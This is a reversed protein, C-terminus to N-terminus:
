HQIEIRLVSNLHIFLESRDERSIVQPLPNALTTRLVVADASSLWIGPPDQSVTLVIGEYGLNRDVVVLARKGIMKELIQFVTPNAEASM